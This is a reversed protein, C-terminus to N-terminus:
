CPQMTGPSAQHRGEVAEVRSGSQRNPGAVRQRHASTLSTEVAPDLLVLRPPKGINEPM